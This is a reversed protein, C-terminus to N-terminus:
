QARPSRPGGGAACLRAVNRRVMGDYGRRGDGAAPFNEFMVVPAGLAGALRDALVRGAPVNGVVLRAKAARADAVARNLAAPDDSAQFEGAVELGLWRCFRAQHHAAVVATGVLGAERVDSRVAVALRELRLGIDRLRAEAAPQSLMGKRVLADAVTRCATRYTEPEGLGGSEPVEVVALGDDVAARLKADFHKQFDFRLLLRCRRIRVLHGPTVDFHGPCTGPGCLEVLPVDENLLDRAAAGLYSTAVAIRAPPEASDAPGDACGGALLVVLALILPTRAM